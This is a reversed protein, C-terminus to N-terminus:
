EQKLMYSCTPGLAIIPVGQQAYPLLRSVNARAAALSSDMDGSDMHPMGCCIQEPCIVEFGNKELVHVAARGVQPENYNVSCTYFLAVRGSTRAKPGRWDWWRRFTTTRFEPLNRRRDIGLIKELVIRSFPLRKMRNIVPAIWSSMKGILDTRPALRDFLSAGKRRRFVAKARTMLRPFDLMFRHPPHYPCHNFCLKCQYCEGVVREHDAAGLKAIPNELASLSAQPQAATQADSIDDIRKFLSGFSPCLNWCRRCGHCVEFVRALEGNLAQQDWFRPESPRPVSAGTM